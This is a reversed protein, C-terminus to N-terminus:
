FHLSPEGSSRVAVKGRALGFLLRRRWCRQVREVAVSVDCRDRVVDARWNSYQENEKENNSTPTYTETRHARPPCSLLLSAM